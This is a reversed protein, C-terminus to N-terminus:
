LKPAKGGLLERLTQYLRDVRQQFARLESQYGDSLRAERETGQKVQEDLKRVEEQLSRNHEQLLVCSSCVTPNNDPLNSPKADIEGDSVEQKIIKNDRTTPRAPTKPFYTPITRASV